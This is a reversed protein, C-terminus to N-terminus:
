SSTGPWRAPNAIRGRLDGASPYIHNAYEAVVPCTAGSPYYCGINWFSEAFRSGISIGLADVVPRGDIWVRLFGQAPDLTVAYVLDHPEDFSLPAQYRVSGVGHRDNEGRTTVQFEGTSARRFAFAPSGGFSSGIHMQGHVGSNLKAMGAPDAWSRHIFSMAGWLVIGNPLRAREGPLSGSLESRLKGAPDRASRDRGSNRIEFRAKDRSVQLCHDMNRNWTSGMNCRWTRGAWALLPPAIGGILISQYPASRPERASCGTSVLASTLGAACFERRSFM